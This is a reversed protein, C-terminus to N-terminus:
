RERGASRRMAADAREVCCQSGVLRMLQVTAAALGAVTSRRPVPGPM